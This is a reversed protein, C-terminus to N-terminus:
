SLVNFIACKSEGFQDTCRGVVVTVDPTVRAAVGPNRENCRGCMFPNNFRVQDNHEIQWRTTAMRLSNQTLDQTYRRPEGRRNLRSSPSNALQSLQRSCPKQHVPPKDGVSAKRFAPWQRDIHRRGSKGLGILNRPTYRYRPREKAKSVNLTRCVQSWSAGERRPEALREADVM